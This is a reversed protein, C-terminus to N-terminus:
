NSYSVRLNATPNAAALNFIELNPFMIAHLVPACSSDEWLFNSLIRQLRGYECSSEELSDPIQKITM